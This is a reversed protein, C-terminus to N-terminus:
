GFLFLPHQKTKATNKKTQKNYYNNTQEGGGGKKKLTYTCVM